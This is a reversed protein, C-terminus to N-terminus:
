ISLNTVDSTGKMEDHKPHEQIKTSILSFTRPFNKKKELNKKINADAGSLFHCHRPQRAEQDNPTIVVDIFTAHVRSVMNIFYRNICLSQIIPLKNWSKMEFLDIAKTFQRLMVPVTFRPRQPSLAKTIPDFWTLCLSELAGAIAAV